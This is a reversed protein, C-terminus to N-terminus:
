WCQQVKDLFFVPGLIGAEKKGERETYSFITQPNM